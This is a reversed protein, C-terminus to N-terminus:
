KTDGKKKARAKIYDVVRRYVPDHKYKWKSLELLTM